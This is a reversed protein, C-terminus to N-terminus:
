FQDEEMAGVSVTLLGRADLAPFWQRAKGKEVEGKCIEGEGDDRVLLRVEVRKLDPYRERKLTEDLVRDLGM